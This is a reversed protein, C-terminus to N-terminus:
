AATRALPDGNFACRWFSGGGCLLENRWGGGGFAGGAGVQPLLWVYEAKLDGVGGAGYEGIIRHDLDYFVMRTDAAGSAPATVLQVREDLRNCAM